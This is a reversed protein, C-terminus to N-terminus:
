ESLEYLMANRPPRAGLLHCPMEVQSISRKVSKLKQNFGRTTKEATRAAFHELRPMDLQHRNDVAVGHVKGVLFSTDKDVHPSINAANLRSLPVLPSPISNTTYNPSRIARSPRRRRGGRGSSSSNEVRPPPSLPSEEGHTEQQSLSLDQFLQECSVIPRCRRHGKKKHLETPTEQAGEHNSYVELLVEDFSALTDLRRHNKVRPTMAFSEVKSINTTTQAITKIRKKHISVLKQTSSAFM